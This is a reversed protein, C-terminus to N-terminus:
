HREDEPRIWFTQTEPDYTANEMTDDHCIWAHVRLNRETAAKVIVPKSLLGATERLIFDEVARQFVHKDFKDGYREKMADRTRRTRRMVEQYIKKSQKNAESDSRLGIEIFECGYHGFVIIDSIQNAAIMDELGGCDNVCGGLNQWTFIPLTPDAPFASNVSCMESCCIVAIGTSKGTTLRKNIESRSVPELYRTSTEDFIGALAKM